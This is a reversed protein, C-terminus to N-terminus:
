AGQEELTLRLDDLQSGSFFWSNGTLGLKQERDPRVVVRGVRETNRLVERNIPVREDDLEISALMGLLRNLHRPGTRVGVDRTNPVGLITLAFEHGQRLAESLLSAALCISKEEVERPDGECQLANTPTTVDLVVRLRPPSPMSRDICVLSDRKSSPKWAVDALTDGHHFERLGYFEEGGRGRRISRQGLPGDSVVAQLVNPRLRYIQPQVLVHWPQHLKKSAHVMGFPFSTRIRIDNFIAIGRQTPWFITDCRVEEKPGIEMVWAKANKFKTAWTKEPDLEQIWISFAPQLRAANRVDYGIFFPQGVRALGGHVRDIHITRISLRTWVITMLTTVLMTGLLWISLNNGQRIATPVVLLLLVIAVILPHVPVPRKAM